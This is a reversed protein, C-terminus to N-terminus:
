GSGLTSRRDVTRIKENPASIKRQTTPRNTTELQRTRERAYDAPTKGRNRTKREAPIQARPTKEVERRDHSLHRSESNIEM